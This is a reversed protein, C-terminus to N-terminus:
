RFRQVVSLVVGAILVIMIVPALDMTDAFTDTVNSSANSLKSNSPSPLASNIQSYILTGILLTIGLTVVTLVAATQGVRGYWTSQDFEYEAEAYGELAELHWSVEDFLGGAFAQIFAWVATLKDLM